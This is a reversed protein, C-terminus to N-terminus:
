IITAWHWISQWEDKNVSLKNEMYLVSDSNDHISHNDRANNKVEKEIDKKLQELSKSFNGNM